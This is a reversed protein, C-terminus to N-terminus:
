HTSLLAVHRQYWTWQPDDRSEAEIRYEPHRGKVQEVVAALDLADSSYVYYERLGATCIRLLYVAWGQGAADLCRILEDELADLADGESPDWLGAGPPQKTWVGVWNLRPLDAAPASKAFRVDLLLLARKGAVYTEFTKWAM